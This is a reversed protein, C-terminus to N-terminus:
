FMRRVPDMVEIVLRKGRRGYGEEMLAALRTDLTPTKWVLGRGVAVQVRPHVDGLIQRVISGLMMNGAAAARVVHTRHLDRFRVKIRLRVLDSPVLLVEDSDIQRYITIPLHIPARTYDM